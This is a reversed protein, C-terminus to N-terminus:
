KGSKLYKMFSSNGNILKQSASYRLPYEKLFFTKCDPRKAGDQLRATRLKGSKLYKMFSSNGNILKQARNRRDIATESTVH